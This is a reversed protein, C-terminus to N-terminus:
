AADLLFEAPQIPFCGLRTFLGYAPGVLFELRGDFLGSGKAPFLADDNFYDPKETNVALFRISHLFHPFKPVSLQAIEKFDREDQHRNPYKERDQQGIHGRQHPLNQHDHRRQDPNAAQVVHDDGGAPQRPLSLRGAKDPSFDGEYPSRQGDSYRSAEIDEDPSASVLTTEHERRVRIPQNGFRTM